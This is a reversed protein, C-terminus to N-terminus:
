LYYGLGSFITRLVGEKMAIVEIWHDEYADGELIVQFQGDQNIDALDLASWTTVTNRDADTKQFPVERLVTVKSNQDIIAIVECLTVESGSLRDYYAEVLSWSLGTPQWVTFYIQGKPKAPLGLSRLRGVVINRIGAPPAGQQKCSRVGDTWKCNYNAEVRINPREKPQRIECGDDPGNGQRGGCYHAKVFSKVSRCPASTCLPRHPDNQSQGGEQGIAISLALPVFLFLRHASM